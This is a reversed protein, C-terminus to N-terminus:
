GLIPSSGAPAPAHQLQASAQEDSLNDLQKLLEDLADAHQSALQLAVADAMQALRPSDFVARLPFDIAYHQGIRAVLRTALLSNGGIDFFSDDPAVRALRLLPRWLQALVEQEASLPVAATAPATVSAPDPLAHRDVKGNANLPWRELVVFASPLMYSPLQARLADRVGAVDFGAVDVGVALTLYAVLRKDGPSDERALVLAERVGACAALRTEIEGPEIRYGRIKLQFDNRGAFEITGDARWKGLDGSRYLRAGPQLSFPDAIFREASHQPLNLYGRAVGDGGIHLEGPVGM